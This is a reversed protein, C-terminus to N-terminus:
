GVSLGELVAASASLGLRNAGAEVMALADAATRIGGSAKVGLRDGVTARMLAVAHASAGGAPHFGTSTKVFDAGAAEAARCSAVIEGDTLAASEIIVKLVAGRCAERVGRIDAEVADFDDEKILRLNVVMDIEEAGKVVADAAEAAKVSTAHAGSPFGCVTALHLNDPLELPLLSPSVCVSYAGLAAAEVVLADVQTATAEPKLLTHDVLSAIQARTTM